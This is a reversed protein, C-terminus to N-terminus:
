EQFGGEATFVRAAPHKQQDSLVRLDGSTKGFTEYNKLTICSWPGKPGGVIASELQTGVVSDGYKSKIAILQAILLNWAAESKQGTKTKWFEEIKDVHGDLDFPISSRSFKFRVKKFNTKEKNIDKKYIDKKFTSGESKKERDRQGNPEGLTGCTDISDLGKRIMENIFSTTSFWTPRVAECAQILEPAIRVTSPKM